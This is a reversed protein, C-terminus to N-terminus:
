WATSIYQTGMGDMGTFRTCPGTLALGVYRAGCVVSWPVRSM